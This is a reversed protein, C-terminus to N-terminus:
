LQGGLARYASLVAKLAAKEEESITREDVRSAAILRLIASKSAAVSFLMILHDVTVREDFWQWTLKGDTDRKFHSEALELIKGDANIQLRSINLPKDTVYQVRLRLWVDCGKRGAYLYFADENLRETTSKDIYWTIGSHEDVNKRVTEPIDSVPGKTCQDEPPPNDAACLASIPALAAAALVLGYLRIQREEGLFKTCHPRIGDSSTECGGCPSNDTLGQSPPAAGSL